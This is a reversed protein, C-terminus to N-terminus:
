RVRVTSQSGYRVVSMSSPGVDQPVNDVDRKADADQLGRLSLTLPGEAQAVTVREAQAETLELTATKGLAVKEGQDGDIRQDIALVRINKLLVEGQIAEQSGRPGYQTVRRTHIVDVRDNPLIFGGASTEPTVSVAVARMGPEILASLFGGSKANVVKAATIPEGETIAARAIDGTMEAIAGPKAAKTIFSQNLSSEPWSQWRVSGDTLRDGREINTSAILVQATPAEVVKPAPPTDGSSVLGRALLAALGAAVVALVLVGIRAANM